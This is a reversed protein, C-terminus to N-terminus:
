RGAKTKVERINVEMYQKKYQTQKASQQALKGRRFYLNNRGNGEHRAINYLKYAWTGGQASSWIGM